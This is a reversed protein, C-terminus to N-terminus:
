HTMNLPIKVLVGDKTYGTIISCYIPIDLTRSRNKQEPRILFYIYIKPTTSYASELYRVLFIICTTTKIRSHEIRWINIKMLVVIDIFNRIRYKSDAHDVVGSVYILKEIQGCYFFQELVNSIRFVTGYNSSVFFVTDQYFNWKIHSM